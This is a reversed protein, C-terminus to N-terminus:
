IPQHSPRIRRQNRIKLRIFFTSAEADHCWRVTVRLHPFSVGVHRLTILPVTTLEEIKNEAPLYWIRKWAKGCWIATTANKPATMISSSTTVAAILVIITDRSRVLIVQRITRHSPYTCPPIHYQRVTITRKSHSIFCKASVHINTSEWHTYTLWFCYDGFCWRSFYQYSLVYGSLTGSIVGLKRM